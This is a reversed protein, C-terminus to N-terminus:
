LSSFIKSSKKQLLTTVSSYVKNAKKQILDDYVLQKNSKKVDLKSKLFNNSNAIAKLKLSYNWIMNSELSQSFGLDEYEVFFSQNFALNYFILFKVGGVEDKQNSSVLIDELIKCCGYGTKFTDSFTQSLGNSINKLNSENNDKKFSSLIDQYTQGMLVKFSRGFTGNLSIQKPIFQDSKLVSIGGATKSIKTIPSDNYSISNPLIPFIFYKSTSLDSNLLEFACMYYEFDNPFQQNLLWKGSPQNLIVDRAESAAIVNGLSKFSM